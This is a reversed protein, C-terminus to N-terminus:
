RWVLSRKRQIVQTKAWTIELTVLGRNIAMKFLSCYIILNDGTTTGLIHFINGGILSRWITDMQDEHAAILAPKSTSARCPYTSLKLISSDFPAFARWILIYQLSKCKIEEASNTQGKVKLLILLCSILSGKLKKKDFSGFGMIEFQYSRHFLFSPSISYVNNSDYRKSWIYGDMWGVTNGIEGNVNEDSCFFISHFPFQWREDQIIKSYIFSPIKLTQGCSLHCVEKYSGDWWKGNDLYCSWGVHWINGGLFPPFYYHWYKVIEDGLVKPKQETQSQFFAHEKKCWTQKCKLQQIRLLHCKQNRHM